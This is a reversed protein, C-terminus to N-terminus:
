ELTLLLAYGTPGGSWNIVTLLVQNGSAAINVVEGYPGPLDVDAVSWARGDPSTALVDTDDGVLTVFGLAESYAAGAHGDLVPAWQWEIGDDSFVVPHPGWGRCGTAIITGDGAVLSTIGMPDDPQELLTGQEWEVLDESVLSEGPGRAVVWRDEFWAATLGMPFSGQQAGQPVVGTRVAGDEPDVSSYTGDEAIVFVVDDNSTIAMKGSSGPGDGIPIPEWAGGDLGGIWIRAADRDLVAIRDGVVALRQPQEFAEYGESYDSFQFHARVMREPDADTWVEGDETWFVGMGGTAVVFGGGPRAAVDAGPWWEGDIQDITWRAETPITTSSELEEEASETEAPEEVAPEPVGSEAAQEASTCGIVMLLCVFLAFAPRM